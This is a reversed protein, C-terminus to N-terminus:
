LDEMMEFPPLPEFVGGLDILEGNLNSSFDGLPHASPNGIFANMNDHNSAFAPNDSSAEPVDYDIGEFLVDETVPAEYTAGDEPALEEADGAVGVGSSDGGSVLGNERAQRLLGEVQAVHIVEALPALLFVLVM